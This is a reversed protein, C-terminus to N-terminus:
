PRAEHRLERISLGGLSLGHKKGFAKLRECTEAVESSVHGNGEVRPLHAAKELLETAYAEIRVGRREAQRALEAELEPGINLTITM